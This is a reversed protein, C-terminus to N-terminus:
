LVWFLSAHHSILSAKASPNMKQEQMQRKERFQGKMGKGSYHDKFEVKWLVLGREVGEFIRNNKKAWITRFKKHVERHMSGRVRRGRLALSISQQAMGWGQRPSLKQKSQSFRKMSRGKMEMEKIAPNFEVKNPKHEYLRAEESIRQHNKYM